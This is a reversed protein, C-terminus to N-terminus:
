VFLRFNITFFIPKNIMNEGYKCFFIDFCIIDCNITTSPFTHFAYLPFNITVEAICFKENIFFFLLQGGPRCASLPVLLFLSTGKGYIFIFPLRFCSLVIKHCVLRNRVLYPSFRRVNYFDNKRDTNRNRRNYPFRKESNHKSQHCNM